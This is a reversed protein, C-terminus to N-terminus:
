DSEPPIVNTELGEVLSDALIPVDVSRFTQGPAFTLTVSADLYDSSAEATGRRTAFVVTAEGTLDGTRTLAISRFGNSEATGYSAHQFQVFSSLVTREELRELTPALPKRRAPRQRFGRALARVLESLWAPCM